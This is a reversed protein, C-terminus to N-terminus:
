AGTPTGRSRVLPPRPAHFVLLAAAGAVFPWAAVPSAAGWALISGLVGIVVCRTWLDLVMLRVRTRSAPTDPENALFVRVQERLALSSVGAVMALLALVFGAVAAQGAHWPIERTPLLRPIELSVVLLVGFLAWVGWVQRRAAIAV